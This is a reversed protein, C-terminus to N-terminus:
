EAYLVKKAALKKIVELIQKKPIQTKEAIQDISTKGDAYFLIGLITDLENNGRPKNKSSPRNAGGVKPYLGRKGLQLEGYPETRKYFILSDIERVLKLHMELSKFINKASVFSLNDLSTHYFDYEYYKDRCISICPIRFGPSSYQREDSGNPVFDYETFKQKSNKLVKRAAVDICGNREFSPKLSFNGPGGVCTVVMGAKIKKVAKENEHCYAIAGITEPVFIIRYSYALDMELMKKALFATLVVGSLNDNALSPHCIYTSILFEEKSKGHILLEGYSLAGNKFESDIFVDYKEGPAFYKKFDNYSVCFGWYENYYSTRYPISEPLDKKYNLHKELESFTVKAHIPQSYSVVHLNNKKFDVIKEGRSNKIWGDKINWEKPINWDYVKKGSPIEKIQLPILKQLIKLTERNGNGTISRTLPFLMALCKQM